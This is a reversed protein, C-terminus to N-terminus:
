AILWMLSLVLSIWLLLGLKTHKRLTGDNRCIAQRLVNREGGRRMWNPGANNVNPNIFMLAVAFVSAAITFIVKAILPMVVWPEIPPM